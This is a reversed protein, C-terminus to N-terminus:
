ALKFSKDTDVIKLNNNSTNDDITEDSNDTKFFAVIQKMKEAEDSLLEAQANLEEAQASLEEANASMEESSSSNQNSIETLHNLSDNVLSVGMEQERGAIVINEMLKSSEIIEPLSKELEIRAIKSIDTGTETLKEIGEAATKSREALKRIEQAVVAFGKGNEGARAAEIAANIALVDTKESIDSIVVIEKSIKNVLDITQLIIESSKQLNGSAEKSKKNTNEAFQTNTSIISKIEQMSASVELTTSAQKSANQSITMSTDAQQSASRTIEHSASTLSNGTILVSDATDKISTIITMLSTVIENASQFLDGIENKGSYKVKQGLNGAAIEKMFINLKNIKGLFRRTTNIFLFLIVLIIFSFLITFILYNRASKKKSVAISNLEYSIENEIQKLIDIKSTIKKFWIKPDVNFKGIKYNTFAIDRYNEIETFNIATNAKEFRLRQKTKAFQIFLDKKIKQSEVLHAFTLFTENSFSDVSFVENMVAREIGASEKMQLFVSYSKSINLIETDTNQKTIVDITNLLQSNLGSYYEIAQKATFEKSQIKSRINKLENLNSLCANLSEEFENTYSNLRINKVTKFYETEEIDTKEKQEHLENKFESKESSLFGSSYGREKQLEHVLSSIKLTVGSLKNLKNMESYLKYKEITFYVSIFIIIVAITIFSVNIKKTFSINKILKM